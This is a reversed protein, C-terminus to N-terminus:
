PDLYRAVAQKWTGQAEMLRAVVERVAGHGGRSELVLDARERVEAPADVVAVGIGARRMVPVDVLDDGVYLCESADLDHEELIRAFAELKDVQGDYVFSLDLDRARARTAADDRGSLLGVLLGADLALRMAQGDRVHFRKLTTGDAGYSITGDTLVGDVDLVIARIRSADRSWTM